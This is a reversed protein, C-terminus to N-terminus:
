ESPLQVVAEQRRGAPERHARLHVVVLMLVRVHVLVRVGRLRGRRRRVMRVLEVRRVRWEYTVECSSAASINNATHRRLWSALSAM